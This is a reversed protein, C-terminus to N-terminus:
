TKLSEKKSMKTAVAMKVEKWRDGYRKKFDADSLDKAIEERRKLETDTLEREQIQQILDKFSMENDRLKQLPSRAETQYEATLEKPLVKKTVLKNIYKIFERTNVGSYNRAVEAAAQNSQNKYKDQRMLEAYDRVMKGYSKPHSIQSLKVIVKDWWARSSIMPRTEDLEVDEKKDKKPMRKTGFTMKPWGGPPPKDGPKYVKGKIKAAKRLRPERRNKSPDENRLNDPDNNMPDNDAHGVDMGIKTKDGM